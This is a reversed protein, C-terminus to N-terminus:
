HLVQQKIQPYTRINRRWWHTCHTAYRSDGQHRELIM